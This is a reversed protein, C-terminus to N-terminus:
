HLQKLKLRATYEEQNLNEQEQTFLILEKVQTQKMLMNVKLPQRILEGQKHHQRVRSTARKSGVSIVRTDERDVIPVFEGVNPSMM